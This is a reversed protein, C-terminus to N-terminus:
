FLPVGNINLFKLLFFLRVMRIWQVFVLGM